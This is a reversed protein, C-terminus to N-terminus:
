WLMTKKIELKEPQFFKMAYDRQIFSTPHLWVIGGPYTPHVRIM